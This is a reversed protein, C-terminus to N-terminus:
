GVLVWPRPVRRRRVGNIGSAGFLARQVCVVRCSPREKCLGFLALRRYWREWRGEDAAPEQVHGCRRNSKKASKARSPGWGWHFHTRRDFCNSGTGARSVDGTERGFGDPVGVTAYEPMDAVEEEPGRAARM